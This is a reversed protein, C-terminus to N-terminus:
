YVVVKLLRISTYSTPTTNIVNIHSRPPSSEFGQSLKSTNAIKTAPVNQALISGEKINEAISGLLSDKDLPRFEFNPAKKM